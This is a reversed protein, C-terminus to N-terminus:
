VLITRLDEEMNEDSSKGCLHTDKGSAEGWKVANNTIVLAM